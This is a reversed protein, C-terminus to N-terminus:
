MSCHQSTIFETFTSMDCEILPTNCHTREVPSRAKRYPEYAQPSTRASKSQSISIKQVLRLYLSLVIPQTLSATSRICLDPIIYLSLVTLADNIVTSIHAPKGSSHTPWFKINENPIGM